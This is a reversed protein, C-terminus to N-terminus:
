ETWSFRASSTKTEDREITRKRRANRIDKNKTLKSLDATSRVKLLRLGRLISVDMEVSAGTDEGRHVDGLRQGARHDTVPLVLFTAEGEESREQRKDEDGLGEEDREEGVM